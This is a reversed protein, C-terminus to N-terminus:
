QEKLIDSMRSPEAGHRLAYDIFRFLVNRDKEDDRLHWYHTNIAMPSNLRECFHYMKVLYDFSPALCANLEKHDSYQMVDPYPLRFVLRYYWRRLYNQINRPTVQRQYDVPIIGSFNMGNKVACDLGYKSIINSPAVFVSIDYDLALSLKKKYEAIEDSLNGEERWQMEPLRKNGVFKYGHTLGHMLVDARNSSLKEKLWAILESNDGVWRPTDNDRTEPCKGYTSVNTVTPIVAFSVPFDPFDAYVREVDEPKTFFNMDDDRIILRVM